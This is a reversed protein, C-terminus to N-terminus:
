TVAVRDSALAGRTSAWAATQGRLHRYLANRRVRLIDARYADAAALNRASAAAMRERDGLMARIAGALAVADGAPVMDPPPLLEPIGGVRSAICPLGRAMAEILARPLGESRSPLVFLDARDLEARVADGAVLEGAFTFRDELRLAQVRAELMPRHAGDGLWVARVDVDAAVLRGVADILVDPGKYIQALSGVAILTVRQGPPPPTRPAAAFASADLDISSYHTSMAWPPAPYQPQLVSRTVYAAAAAGGCHDRLQRSLWIRMLPRLPHSVAGPAFAEYPSGLVEVGYPRHQQRLYPVLISALVSPVRFLVACHDAVAACAARRIARQRAFYQWPGQYFPVATVSVGDGDVRRWGAPVDAVDRVRALVRVADFVELYRSWFRRDFVTPTWTRGDPTRDIRMEGTVLVYM